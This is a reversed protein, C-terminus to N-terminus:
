NSTRPSQEITLGALRDEFIRADFRKKAREIVEKKLQEFEMEELYRSIADKTNEYTLPAAEKRGLCRFLVVYHSSIEFPGVIEGPQIGALESAMSGFESLAMFGLEGGRDVLGIDLTYKRLVEEYSVGGDIMARGDQAAEISAFPIEALNLHLEPAFFEGDEEFVM